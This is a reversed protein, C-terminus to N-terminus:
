RRATTRWSWTGRWSTSRRAWTRRAHWAARGPEPDYQRRLGLVGRARRLAVVRGNRQGAAPLVPQRGPCHLELAVPRRAPGRYHRESDPQGRHLVSRRDAGADPRLRCQRGGFGRRIAIVRALGSSRRHDRGAQDDAGDDDDDFYGDACDLVRWALVTATHGLWGAARPAADLLGSGGARADVYARDDRPELLRRDARVRVFWAGGLVASRTDAWWDRRRRLGACWASWASWKSRGM